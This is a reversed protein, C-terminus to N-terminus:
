CAGRRRSERGAPRTVIVGASIGIAIAILSSIGVLEAHALTLAFFGAQQYLPRPQEPFLAHFLPESHPLGILLAAFLVLLWLLPDRLVHM